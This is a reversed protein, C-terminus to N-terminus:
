APQSLWTLVKSINQFLLQLQEELLDSRILDWDWSSFGLASEYSLAMPSNTSQLTIPLRIEYNFGRSFRGFDFHLNLPMGTSILPAAWNGGGQSALKTGFREKLMPQLVSRIQTSKPTDVHDMGALVEELRTRGESPAMHAIRLKTVLKIDAVPEYRMWNAGQIEQAEERVKRREERDLTRESFKMFYSLNFKERDSRFLEGMPSVLRSPIGDIGRFDDAIHQRWEM